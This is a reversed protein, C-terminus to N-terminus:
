LSYEFYGGHSEICAEVRRMMSRWMRKFIGRYLPITQCADVIRHHLAEENDFAAAYVLSKLHGWLYFYLPNLVASLPPWATPGGRGIRRDRYTKNLVDLVARSFYTPAGDHMYWMRARVAVPVSKLRKPLDHLLFHRYHSGTLHSLVHLSVLRYDIVNQAGLREAICLFNFTEQCM